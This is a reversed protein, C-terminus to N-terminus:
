VVTRPSWQGGGGGVCVGQGRDVAGGGVCVGQGRDVAGGGGCM